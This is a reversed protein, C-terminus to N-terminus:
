QEIGLVRDVEADLRPPAMRGAADPVVLVLPRANRMAADLVAPNLMAAAPAALLLLETDRLAADFAAAIGARDAVRTRLGALRYAAATIEDGIFLPAPV